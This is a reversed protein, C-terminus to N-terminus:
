GIKNLNWDVPDEEHNERDDDGSGDVVQQEPGAPTPLNPGHGLIPNHGARYPDIGFLDIPQGESDTTANGTDGAARERHDARGTRCLWADDYRRTKNQDRTEEVDSGGGIEWRLGM